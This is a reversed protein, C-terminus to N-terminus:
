NGASFWLFQYDRKGSMKGLRTFSITQHDRVYQNTRSSHTISM